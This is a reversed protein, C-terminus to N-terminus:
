PAPGGPTARMSKKGGWLIKLTRGSPALAEIAAAWSLLQDISTARDKSLKAIQDIAFKATGCDLFLNPRKWFCNPHVEM